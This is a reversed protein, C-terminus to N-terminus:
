LLSLVGRHTCSAAFLSLLVVNIRRDCVLLVGGGSGSSFVGLLIDCVSIHRLAVVAPCLVRGVQEEM